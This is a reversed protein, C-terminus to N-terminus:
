SRDLRFDEGYGLRQQCVRRATEWEEEDGDSTVRLLAGLYHKFVILAAQVALDYPKRVTKCFTFALSGDGPDAEELRIDFTEHSEAAVGNFVIADSSFKPKGKGNSGALPVNLEPLLRRCDVLAQGFAQAPLRPPREWYHTYGM